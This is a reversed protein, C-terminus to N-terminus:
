GKESPSANVAGVAAAAPGIWARASVGSSRSCRTTVSNM